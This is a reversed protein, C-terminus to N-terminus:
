LETNKVEKIGADVARKTGRKLLRIIPRLIAVIGLSVVLGLIFLFKFFGMPGGLLNTFGLIFFLALFLVIVIGPIILIGIATEAVEGAVFGGTDQRIEKATKRIRLLKFLMERTYLFGAASDNLLLDMQTDMM